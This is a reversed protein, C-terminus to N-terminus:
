KNVNVVGPHFHRKQVEVLTNTFDLATEFDVIKNEFKYIDSFSQTYWSRIKRISPMLCLGYPFMDITKVNKSLRILLEQQLLQASKIITQKTPNEAFRVIGLLSFLTPTMKQYDNILKPIKVVYTKFKSYIKLKKM